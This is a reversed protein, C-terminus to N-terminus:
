FRKTQEYPAGKSKKEEKLGFPRVDRSVTGKVHATHGASAIDEIVPIM